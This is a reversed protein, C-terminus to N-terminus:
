YGSGTFTKVTKIIATCPGTYKMPSCPRNKRVNSVVEQEQVILLAPIGELYRLQRLLYNEYDYLRKYKGDPMDRASLDKLALYHKRLMGWAEIVNAQSKHKSKSFFPLDTDM